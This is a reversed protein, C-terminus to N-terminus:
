VLGLERARAVAQTRSNVQLKTFIHHTHSKTTGVSIVLETAIQKDSLGRALCTLVECERDTLTNRNSPPGSRDLITLVRDIFESKLHRPGNDVPPLFIPIQGRQRAERFQENSLRAKLLALMEQVPKVRPDHQWDSFILGTAVTLIEVADPAHGLEVLMLGMASLLYFLGPILLNVQQEAWNVENRLCAWANFPAGLRLHAIVINARFQALGIQTQASAVISLGTEAYFLLKPYDQYALASEALFFLCTAQGFIGGEGLSHFIDVAEEIKQRGGAYDGLKILVVGNFCLAFGMNQDMVDGQASFFALAKEIDKAAEQCESLQQYMFARETLVRAIALNCEPNAPLDCLRDMADSFEELAYRWLIHIACFYGLSFSYQNIQHVLVHEVAYRWGMQINRFEHEVKRTMDLDHGKFLMQELSTLLKGYYVCHKKQIRERALPADDLKKFAYQRLLEHLDFGGTLHRRILSKDILSSLVQLNAEAVQEGAELSFEGRFVSLNCLVHQEQDSLRKWSTDFVAQMSLHRKPLDRRRSTLIDLNHEIQTAIESPSIVRVWSAALELALPMGEVLSCIRTIGNQDADTLVLEPDSRRATLLFLEAAPTITHEDGAAFPLGNVDLVWEDSLNLRERSTVLLKIGPASALRDLLHAGEVLHDFNDVVLLLQKERLYATVQELPDGSGFISMGVAEAIAPVVFDISNIPACSVFFWGDPFEPTLFQAAHVALRTKGIGGPGLLTLLRCTPDNFLRVIHALEDDRGILPTSQVQVGDM